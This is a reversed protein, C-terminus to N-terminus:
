EENEIRTQGFRFYLRLDLIAQKKALKRAICVYTLLHYETRISVVKCLEFEFSFETM